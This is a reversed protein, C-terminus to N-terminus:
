CSSEKSKLYEKEAEEWVWQQACPIQKTKCYNMKWFWKTEQNTM